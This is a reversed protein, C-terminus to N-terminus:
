CLMAGPFLHCRLLRKLAVLVELPGYQTLAEAAPLAAQYLPLARAFALTYPLTILGPLLGQVAV